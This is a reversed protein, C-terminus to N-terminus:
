VFSKVVHACVYVCVVSVAFTRLPQSAYVSLGESLILRVISAVCVQYHGFCNKLVSFKFFNNINKTILYNIYHAKLFLALILWSM